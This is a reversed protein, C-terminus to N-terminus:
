NFLSGFRLYDDIGCVYNEAYVNFRRHKDEYAKFVVFASILILTLTMILLYILVIQDNIKKHKKDSFYIDIQKDIDSPPIMLLLILATLLSTLTLASFLGMGFKSFIYLLLLFLILYIIIALAFNM